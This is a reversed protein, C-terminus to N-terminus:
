GLFHLVFSVHCSAQFLPTSAIGHMRLSSRQFSGNASFLRAQQVWWSGGATTFILILCCAVVLGAAM